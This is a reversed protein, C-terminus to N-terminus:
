SADFAATIWQMHAADPADFVIADFRCPRNAHHRGRGALWWRAALIVRRQKSQTISAAAGGFRANSRLRVEIFVVTDRDLGILDVEGGRCLVNRELIRIGHRRLHDAALDEAIRGQAQARTPRAGVIATKSGLAPKKM